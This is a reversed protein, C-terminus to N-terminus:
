LDFDKIKELAVDGWGGLLQVKVRSTEVSTGVVFCLSLSTGYGSVKVPQVKLLQRHSFVTGPIGLTIM